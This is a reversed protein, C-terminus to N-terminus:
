CQQKEEVSIVVAEEAFCQADAPENATVVSVYESLVVMAIALRADGGGLLCRRTIDHKCRRCTHRRRQVGSVNGHCIEATSVFVVVLLESTHGLDVVVHGGDVDGADGGDRHRHGGAFVLVTVVHGHAHLENGPVGLFVLQNAGGLEELLLAVKLVMVHRLHKLTTKPQVFVRVLM